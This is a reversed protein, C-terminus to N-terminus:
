YINSEYQSYRFVSVYVNHILHLKNNALTLITSVYSTFSYENNSIHWDYEIASAIYTWLKKVSIIFMGLLQILIISLISKSYEKRNNINSCKIKIESEKRQNFIKSKTYKLFLKFISFEMRLQINIYHAM